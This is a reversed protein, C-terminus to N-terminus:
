HNKVAIWPFPNKGFLRNKISRPNGLIKHHFSALTSIPHHFYFRTMEPIGLLAYYAKSREQAAALQATNYLPSDLIHIEGDPKLRSLSVNLIEMLSPFYQVSAAFVIVDFKWENLMGSRIDGYIFKLRTKRTFVRAAQQLEMFNIDSGIVHCNRLRSLHNSLWGNGCGIELVDLKGGKAQLYHMLRQCSKKRIMWEKFHPHSDWIDPLSM